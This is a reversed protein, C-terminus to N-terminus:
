DGENLVTNKDDMLASPIASFFHGNALQWDILSGILVFM